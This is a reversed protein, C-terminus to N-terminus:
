GSLLVQVRREVEARAADGVVDAPFELMVGGDDDEIVRPVAAAELEPPLAIVDGREFSEIM